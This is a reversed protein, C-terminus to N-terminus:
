ALQFQIGVITRFITHTTYGNEIFSGPITVFLHPCTYTQRRSVTPTSILSMCTRGTECHSVNIFLVMHVYPKVAPYFSQTYMNRTEGSVQLLTAGTQRREGREVEEQNEAPGRYAAERLIGDGLEGGGSAQTVWVDSKLLSTMSVVHANCFKFLWETQVRWVFCLIVLLIVSAAIENTPLLVRKCITAAAYLCNLIWDWVKSRAQIPCRYPDSCREVRPLTRETWHRVKHLWLVAWLRHAHLRVLFPFLVFVFQFILTDVNRVKRDVENMYINDIKPFERYYTKHSTWSHTHIFFWHRGPRWICKASPPVGCYLGEHWKGFLRHIVKGEQDM